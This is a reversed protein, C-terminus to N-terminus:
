LLNIVKSIYSQSEIGLIDLASVIKLIDVNVNAGIRKLMYVLDETAINGRAGVAFPCGGLGGASSDFKYISFEKYAVYVNAMAMGYTVHFHLVIKEISIEKLLVSLLNRVDDPSAKGITDGISIEDVGFELLKLAIQFVKKEEIKGEYPCYFATSIYARTLKKHEKSIKIINKFKNLSEEITMNINKLNFTESASTFVSIKDLNVSLARELGKENPVLASYIVNKNRNINRFVEEADSLQPIAKPSVFSSVEIEDVGSESLKNIFEIKKETSIIEKINQLGDRPGVETIYIKM